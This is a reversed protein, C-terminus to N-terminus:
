LKVKSKKCLQQVKAVNANKAIEEISTQQIGKKCFLNICSLAIENRKEEKDIIRAM